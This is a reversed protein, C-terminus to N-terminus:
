FYDEVEEHTLPNKVKAFVISYVVKNSEVQATIFSQTELLEKNAFKVRRGDSLTKIREEDVMKRRLGLGRGLQAHNLVAFPCVLIRIHEWIFLCKIKLVYLMGWSPFYDSSQQPASWDMLKVRLLM